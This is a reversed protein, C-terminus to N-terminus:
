EKTIQSLDSENTGIQLKGYSETDLISLNAEGVIAKFDKSSPTPPLIYLDEIREAVPANLTELEGLVEELENKASNLKSNLAVMNTAKHKTMLEEFEENSLMVEYTSKGEKKEISKMIIHEELKFKEIEAVFSAIRSEWYERKETATNIKREKEEKIWARHREINTNKSSNKKWSKYQGESFLKGELMNQKRKKSEIDTTPMHYVGAHRQSSPRTKRVGVFQLIDRKEENEWMNNIRRPKHPHNDPLANARNYVYKGYGWGIGASIVTVSVLFLFFEKLKWPFNHYAFGWRL